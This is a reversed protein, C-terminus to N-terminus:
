ACLRARARVYGCVYLRGGDVFAVSGECLPRLLGLCSFGCLEGGDGGVVAIWRAVCGCMGGEEGGGLMTLRLLM